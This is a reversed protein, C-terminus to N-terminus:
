GTMLRVWTAKDADELSNLAFEDPSQRTIVLYLHNLAKTAKRTSRSGGAIDVSPQTGSVGHTRTRGPPEAGGLLTM